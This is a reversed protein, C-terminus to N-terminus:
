EFDSYKLNLDNTLYYDSYTNASGENFVTIKILNNVFQIDSIFVIDDDDFRNLFKNLSKIERNYYLSVNELQQQTKM